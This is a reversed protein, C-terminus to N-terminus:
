VEGFYKIIFDYAARIFAEVNTGNFYFMTDKTDYHSEVFRVVKHATYRTFVCIFDTHKVTDVTNLQQRMNHLGYSAMKELMQVEGGVCLIDYDKITEVCEEISVQTEAVEEGCEDTDDSYYSLVTSKLVDLEERLRKIEADKTDLQFKYSAFEKEAVQQTSQSSEEMAAIKDQATKLEYRLNQMEAKQEEVVKNTEKVNKNNNETLLTNRLACAMLKDNYIRIDPVEDIYDTSYSSNYIARFLKYNDCLERDIKNGRYEVQNDVIPLGMILRGLNDNGLAGFVQERYDLIMQDLFFQTEDPIGLWRYLHTLWLMTVAICVRDTNTIIFKEDESSLKYCLNGVLNGLYEKDDLSNNLIVRECISWCSSILGSSNITNLLIEDVAGWGADLLTMMVAEAFKTSSDTHIEPVHTIMRSTHKRMESFATYNPATNEVRPYTMDYMVTETSYDFISAAIGPMIPIAVAIYPLLNVIRYSKLKNTDRNSTIMAPIMDFEEPNGLPEGKMFFCTLAWTPVTKNGRFVVKDDRIKWKMAGEMGVAIEAAHKNFRGKLRLRSLDFRNM